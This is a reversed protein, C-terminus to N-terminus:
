CVDQETFRTACAPIRAHSRSSARSIDGQLLIANDKGIREANSSQTASSPKAPAAKEVVAAKAALSVPGPVKQRKLDGLSGDRRSPKCCPPLIALPRGLIVARPGDLAQLIQGGSLQM